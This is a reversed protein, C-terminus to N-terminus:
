AGASPERGSREAVAWAVAPTAHRSSVTPAM